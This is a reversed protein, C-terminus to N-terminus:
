RSSALMRMVQTVRARSVGQWRAIEARSRIARAALLARWVLAKRVHDPLGNWRRGSPSDQSRPAALVIKGGSTGLRLSLARRVPDRLRRRRVPIPWSRISLPMEPMRIRNACQPPRPALHTLTRVADQNPVACRVQGPNRDHASGGDGPTVPSSPGDNGGSCKRFRRLGGGARIFASPSRGVPGPADLAKGSWCAARM